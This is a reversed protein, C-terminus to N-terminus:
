APARGISRADMPRLWASTLVHDEIVQIVPHDLLDYNPPNGIKV